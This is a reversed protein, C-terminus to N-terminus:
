IASKIDEWIQKVADVFGQNFGRRYTELDGFRELEIEAQEDEPTRCYDSEYCCYLLGMANSDPKDFKMEGEGIQRLHGYNAHKIAWERGVKAGLKWAHEITGNTEKKLREILTKMDKAKINTLASESIIARDFAEMFVRSFNIRNRWREIDKM